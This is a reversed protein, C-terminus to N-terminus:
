LARSHMRGGNSAARLDHLIQPVNAAFEPRASGLDLDALANYCSGFSYCVAGGGVIVLKDKAPVLSFGLLMPAHQRWDSEDFSVGSIAHTDFDIRIITDEIGLCKVNSAGGIVYLALLSRLLYLECGIRLFADSRAVLTTQVAGDKLTFQYLCDNVTPRNHEIIGGAIYGNNDPEHYAIGSSFFSFQEGKVPVIRLMGTSIDFIEFANKVNGTGGFVLVEHSNLRVAGHRARPCCLAGLKIWKEGSLQYVDEFIEGPRGRGGILISVTDMATLTHCMRSLPAEQDAIEFHEEDTLRLTKNTRTQNLGGFVNITGDAPSALCASPFKLQVDQHRPTLRAKGSSPFLTFEKTPPYILQDMSSAHIVVYHQCFVIFEEWEDFDELSAVKEKLEDPILFDWNEFLNRIETFEFCEKFRQVQLEKTLYTQVCQLPSRLHSFHYLMKKAFPHYEGAPLIQELMLFHSNQVQSSLHIIPNAHLPKMYALSVEAVFVTVTSNSDLLSSLQKVYLEKDKLDCAVIKYKERAFLVGLSKDCECQVGLLELIETSEQIMSVKNHLLDPYDFDLFSINTYKKEALMQFPLPDYGCGLNVICVHKESNKEIIKSIMLKISQMRIWYGRNIAPSRRKAKNVFYKFWEGSDPELRTTYLMEVSRKSVISSNNTGQVQLDDYQKRRRDKEVKKRQRAQQNALVPDM